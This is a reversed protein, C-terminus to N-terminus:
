VGRQSLIAKKGLTSNTKLTPGENGSQQHAKYALQKSEETNVVEDAVKPARYPNEFLGLAFMEKLLRAAARDIVDETLLGENYAQRFAEVDNTGSFLDTGANMGKAIRETKSLDEVGWAKGDLVGTDSNIYGNFGLTDKLLDTIMAKNFAFAVEEFEGEFPAQPMASKENSPIAYYPMISSPQKKIAAKFPPLHYKELSGPTPYVNFNGEAYHPDFGNERAGGGPFHKITLAVSDEKLEQGQYSEIVTGITESIFEPEEGFTGNVRFWRPDTATDAMYMYGKRINTANWEKRGTDAFEKVVQPNQTAAIGLTGPWTTFKAESDEANFNIGTNENRSNSAVIVPIGLRTGEAVENLTNVWKAIDSPLANERVILHRMHMNEIMHTTGYDRTGKFPGDQIIEDVESLIGDHSTKTKDEISIGMKKDFISFLGVKEDITMKSVLDDAREEPSLRWDEYKDLKGNGNLDKFKFEEVEIINKVRAEIKPQKM